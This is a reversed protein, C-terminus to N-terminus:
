FFVKELLKTSTPPLPHSETTSHVPVPTAAPPLYGLAQRIASSQGVVRPTNVSRQIPSRDSTKSM